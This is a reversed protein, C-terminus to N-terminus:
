FGESEEGFADESDDIETELEDEPDLGEDFARPSLFEDEREDDM